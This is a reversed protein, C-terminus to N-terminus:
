VNRTFFLPDDLVASTADPRIRKVASIIKEVWVSCYLECLGPSKGMIDDSSMELADTRCGEYCRLSYKCNRCVEHLAFYESARTGILNMCSSDTICRTLGQETILPYNEQIKMGSLSMCLLTRVEPSIYMVHRAHGCM